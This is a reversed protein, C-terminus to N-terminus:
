QCTLTFGVKENGSCSVSCPESRLCECTPAGASCGQPLTMCTYVDGDAPKTDRQCYQTALSCVAYGCAFSGTPVTCGNANLDFGDSYTICDSSHVNGDCGCVPRGILAPCADPRRKCTGPGDAIGCRNDPYDCYETAACMAGAFGGCLTGTPPPQTPADTNTGDSPVQADPDPSPTRDSSGCAGLVGAVFVLGLLTTRM